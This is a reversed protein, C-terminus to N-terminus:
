LSWSFFAVDFSASQTPLREAFGVRFSINRIGAASAAQRARIVRARDPEVAVVSSAVQALEMTLRGEGSGLELVRKGKLAVM